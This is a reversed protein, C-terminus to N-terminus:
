LVRMSFDIATVNKTVSGISVRDVGTAAIDAITELNVGGSVELVARGDAEKYALRMNELDFNDLLINKAGANLAETLEELTEVEIQVDLGANLQKANALVAPIGGAAAIHNEKILIGDWLAHRHNKGGGVRVAYKQAHRLGPLTKRTDLVDCGKPNPSVGTVAQVYRRTSTATASLTQLFNLAPREASMLSRAFIKIDCVKAGEEMLDGDQYCWTIEAGPDCSKLCRNFWEVGCLVAEERVIVQATVRRAGPVLQATWDCIGIDEFLADHVNRSIAEELTENHDFM